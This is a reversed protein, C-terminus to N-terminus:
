FQDFSATIVFVKNLLIKVFLYLMPLFQKTFHREFSINSNTFLKNESVLNVSDSYIWLFTPNFRLMSVNLKTIALIYQLM